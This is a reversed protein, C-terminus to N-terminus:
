KIIVTLSPSVGANYLKLGYISSDFSLNDDLVLTADQPIVVGKIFYIAPNTGDDLYLDVKAPQNSRTNAITIKRISGSVEGGKTILTTTVSTTNTYIAM